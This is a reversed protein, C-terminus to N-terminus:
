RGLYRLNGNCSPCPYYFSCSETSLTKDAPVKDRCAFCMLDGCCATEFTTVNHCGMCTGFTVVLPNAALFTWQQDAVADEASPQDGLHVKFPASGSCDLQLHNFVNVTVRLLEQAESWWFSMGSYDKFPEMPQRHTRWVDQSFLVVQAEGEGKGYLFKTSVLKIAVQVETSTRYARFQAVCHLGLVKRVGQMPLVEQVPAGPDSFLSRLWQQVSRTAAKFCREKAENALIHKVLVPSLQYLAPVIRSNVVPAQVFSAASVQSM